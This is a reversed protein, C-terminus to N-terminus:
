DHAARTHATGGIRCGACGDPRAAGRRASGLRATARAPPRGGCLRVQRPLPVRGHPAAVRRSAGGRRRLALRTVGIRRPQKCAVAAEAELLEHLDHVVHAGVAAVTRGRGVLLLLLEPVSEPDASSGLQFVAFSCRDRSISKTETELHEVLM